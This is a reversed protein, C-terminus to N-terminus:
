TAWDPVSVKAAPSVCFVMVIAAISSRAAVGLWLKLRTRDAGLPAVRACPLAVPVMMLSSAAGGGDFPRCVPSATTSEHFLPKLALTETRLSAAAVLPQCIAMSMGLWILSMQFALIM